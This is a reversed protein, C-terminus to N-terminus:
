QIEKLERDLKHDKTILNVKRLKVYTLKRIWYTEKDERALRGADKRAENLVSNYTDIKKM